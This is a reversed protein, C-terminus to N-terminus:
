GAVFRSFNLSKEMSETLYATTWIPDLVRLSAQPIVKLTTDAWTPVAWALALPAMMLGTSLLRQLRSLM